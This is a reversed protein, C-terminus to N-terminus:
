PGPSEVVEVVHAMNVLLTSDDIEIYRFAKSDRAWDSLRDHGEPRYICVCGAIRRGNSLLVSILRRTASDYGPDRRAEDNNLAVMIIRSRNHLVTRAYADDRHEFPFFGPEANLVEEVREPGPHHPSATSVFFSGFTSEGTSLTLVADVRQKEIRYHPASPAQLM